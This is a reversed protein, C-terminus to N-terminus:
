LHRANYTGPTLPVPTGGSEIAGLHLAIQLNRWEYHFVVGKITLLKDSDYALM